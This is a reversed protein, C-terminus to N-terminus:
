PRVVILSIQPTPDPESRRIRPGLPNLEIAHAAVIATFLVTVWPVSGHRVVILARDRSPDGSHLRAVERRRLRQPLSVERPHHVQCPRPQPRRPAPVSGAVLLIRSQAGEVTEARPQGPSLEGLQGVAVVEPPEQHDDGRPFDLRLIAMPEALLAAAPLDPGGGFDGIVAVVVSRAWATPESGVGSNAAMTASSYRLSRSRSPSSTRRLTATRRMSPNVVSAM